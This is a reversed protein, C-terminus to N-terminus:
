GSWITCAMSRESPMLVSAATCSVAAGSGRKAMGASDSSARTCARTSAVVASLQRQPGRPRCCAPPWRRGVWKAQCRGCRLRGAPARGPQAGAGGRQAAMKREREFGPEALRAAADRAQARRGAGAQRCGRADTGAAIKFFIQFTCVTM